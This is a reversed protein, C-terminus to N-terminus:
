REIRVESSLYRKVRRAAEPMPLALTIAVLDIAVNGLWDPSYADAIEWLNALFTTPFSPAILHSRAPYKSIQTQTDGLIPSMSQATSSLSPVLCQAFLYLILGANSM